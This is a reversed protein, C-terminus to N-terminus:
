KVNRRKVRKNNTRLNIYGLVGITIFVILTNYAYAGPNVSRVRLASYLWISFNNYGNGTTFYSIVFDDISMTFAILAGALISTKISPIIVKFVGEIHTCGLDLAAEFLNPDLEKLKPLVTLVVFPISFFIHALLMTTMGFSIPLLSFVLLLSIGTVIDPNIVPINNLIMMKVRNKKRLSNIGIAILTGLVTAILTSLTAITLSRVIAERLNDNIFIEKYWKFSFTTWEYTYSTKNFSLLTIIFIPLYVIFYGFSVFIIKITKKM